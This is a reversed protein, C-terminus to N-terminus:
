SGIHCQIWVSHEQTDVPLGGWTTTLETSTKRGELGRSSALLKTPALSSPLISTSQTLVAVAGAEIEKTIVASEGKTLDFVTLYQADWELASVICWVMCGSKEKVSKTSGQLIGSIKSRLLLLLMQIELFRVKSQRELQVTYLSQHSHLRCLWLRTHFSRCWRGCTLQSHFQQTKTRM